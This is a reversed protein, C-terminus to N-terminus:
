SSSTSVREWYSNFEVQFSKIVYMLRIIVFNEANRQDANRSWNFSGTILADGDGICFKHHFSGSGSGYVKRVEVGLAELKEDDSWRGGAQASDMLVRVKVGRGHARGIAAAIDNHTLAYIAIDLTKECHDIFGVVQQAAGKRPSFYTSVYPRRKSM